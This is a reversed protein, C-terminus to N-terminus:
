SPSCRSQLCPTLPEFGRVDVLNKRIAFSKAIVNQGSLDIIRACQARVTCSHTMPGGKHVIARDFFCRGGGRTGDRQSSPKAEGLSRAEDEAENAFVEQLSARREPPATANGVRRSRRGREAKHCLSFPSRLDSFLAGEGTASNEELRNQTEQPARNSESRESVFVAGHRFDGDSEQFGRYRYSYPACRCRRESNEFGTDLCGCKAFGSPGKEDSDTGQLDAIRDGHHHSRHEAFVASCAGRNKATRVM